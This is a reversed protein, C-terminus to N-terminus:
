CPPNKWPLRPHSNSGHPVHGGVGEVVSTWRAHRLKCLRLDVRLDVWRWTDMKEPSLQTHSELSNISFGM